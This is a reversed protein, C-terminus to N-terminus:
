VGAGGEAPKTAVLWNRARVSALHLPWGRDLVFRITHDLAMRLATHLNQNAMQRVTKVGDFDRGPEIYDAIWVIQELLSMEARGTTHWRIADLVEPDDVLGEALLLAGGVPGHLLQPHSEEAPDTILGYGKALSLLQADSIAKAYDHLLAAAEAKAMDAGFRVALERATEVVRYVHALREGQIRAKLAGEWESWRDVMQSVGGNLFAFDSWDSQGPAKPIYIIPRSITLWWM